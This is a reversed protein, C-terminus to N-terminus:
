EGSRWQFTPGPLFTPTTPEAPQAVHADLQGCAMPACTTSNVVEGPLRSSASRQAGVLHHHRPGSSIARVGVAEVEDQVRHGGAVVQVGESLQQLAVAGHGPRRARARRMRRGTNLRIMFRRRDGARQDAADGLGLLHEVEAGLVADDGSMSIIRHVLDVLGVLAHQLAVHLVAEHDVHGRPWRV